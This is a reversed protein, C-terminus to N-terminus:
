NLLLKKRQRHQAQLKNSGYKAENEHVRCSYSNMTNMVENPWKYKYMAQAMATAVCGTVLNEGTTSYPDKPCLDSYPADQDWLTEVLPAVPTRAEMKSPVKATKKVHYKDLLSIEQAMGDMFSRINESMNNIDFSTTTSYGLIESTRDDGSVIVFGKGDQANFVYYPATANPGQANMRPAYVANTGKLQKGYQQLFKKATQSATSLKVPAAWSVPSLLLM